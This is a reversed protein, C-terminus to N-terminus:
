RLGLLVLLGNLTFGDKAPKSVVVPPQQDGVVGVSLCSHPGHLFHQLGAEGPATNIVDRSLRQGNFM